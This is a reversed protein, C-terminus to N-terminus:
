SQRQQQPAPPQCLAREEAVEFGRRKEFTGGHRCCGSPVVPRRHGRTHGHQLPKLPLVLRRQGRAASAVNAWSRGISATSQLVAKVATNGTGRWQRLLQLVAGVGICPM